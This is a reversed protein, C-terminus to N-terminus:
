SHRQYAGERPKAYYKRPAVHSASGAGGSSAGVSSSEETFLIWWFLKFSIYGAFATVITFLINQKAAFFRLWHLGANKPLLPAKERLLPYYYDFQVAVWDTLGVVWEFEYSMVLKKVRENSRVPVNKPDSKRLGLKIQMRGAATVRLADNKFIDPTVVGPLLESSYVNEEAEEEEVIHSWVGGNAYEESGGIVGAEIESRETESVGFVDVCVKSLGYLKAVASQLLATRKLQREKDLGESSVIHSWITRGIWFLLNWFYLNLSAGDWETPLTPFQGSVAPVTTSTPSSPSTPSLPSKLPKHLPLNVPLYTNLRNITSYINGLMTRALVLGPADAGVNGSKAMAEAVASAMFM